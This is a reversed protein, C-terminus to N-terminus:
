KESLRNKLETIREVPTPDVKNLLASYYSIWDILHIMCLSKEVSSEGDVKLVLHNSPYKIKSVQRSKRSTYQVESVKRYHEPFVRRATAYWLM